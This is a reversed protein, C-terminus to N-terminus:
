RRNGLRSEAIALNHLAPQNRPNIALAQRFDQVAAAPDGASLHVTGRYYYTM